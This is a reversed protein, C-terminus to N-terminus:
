ERATHEKWSDSKSKHGNRSEFYLKYTSITLMVIKNVHCLMAELHYMVSSQWIIQNAINILNFLAIVSLPYISM